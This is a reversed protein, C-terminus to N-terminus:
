IIIGGNKLVDAIRRIDKPNPNENYLRILMFKEKKGTM